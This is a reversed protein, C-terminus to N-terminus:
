ECLLSNMISTIDFVSFERLALSCEKFPHSIELCIFLLRQMATIPFNIKLIYMKNKSANRIDIYSSQKACSVLSFALVPNVLYSFM